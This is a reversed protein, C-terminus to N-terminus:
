LVRRGHSPSRIHVEGDGGQQRGQQRLLQQSQHGCSAHPQGRPQPQPQDRQGRSQISRVDRHRRIRDQRINHHIRHIRRGHISRNHRVRTHRSRNFLCIFLCVFLCALHIFILYHFFTFMAMTLFDVLVAMQYQTSSRESPILFFLKIM